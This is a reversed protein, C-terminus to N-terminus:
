TKGRDKKQSPRDKSTVKRFAREAGKESEDVGAERAAEIFRKYQAPDDPKPKAKQAM